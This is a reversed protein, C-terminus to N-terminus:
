LGIMLMILLWVAILAGAMWVLRIRRAQNSAARILRFEALDAEVDGTGKSKFGWTSDSEAAARIASLRTNSLEPKLSSLWPRLERQTLVAVKKPPRAVTVNRPDVVVLCPTVDVREGVADSLLQTARVAEFECERIFPVRDGDVIVTVDGVWLSKGALPQVSITFVGMPGVLLHDIESDSKGIPISHRSYCDDGLSALTEAIAIEGLASQYPLKLRSPLPSIGFFKAPASREPLLRVERLLEKLKPFPRVLDVEERSAAPRNPM